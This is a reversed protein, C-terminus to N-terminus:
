LRHREDDAVVEVVFSLRQGLYDGVIEWCGASPFEVGVLMTWGGLSAAYANTTRSVDVAPSDGDLRRGTVRLESETGPKFGLSWWFLKDRYNHEPGMGRWNSGPPLLVALTESGYWRESSPFHKGFIDGSAVTKPCAASEGAQACSIQYVAVALLVLLRPRPNMAVGDLTSTSRGRYM